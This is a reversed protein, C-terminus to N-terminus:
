AGNRWGNVEDPEFVEVGRLEVAGVVGGVDRVFAGVGGLEACFVVGGEGDVDPVGGGCPLEECVVVAPEKRGIVAVFVGDLADVRELVEDHVVVSADVHIEVDRTSSGELWQQLDRGPKGFRLRETHIVIEESRPFPVPNHPHHNLPQLSPVPIQDKGVHRNEPTRSRLEHAIHNPPPITLPKRLSINLPLRFM